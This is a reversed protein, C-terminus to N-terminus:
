GDLEFRIKEPEEGEILEVLSDMNEARQHIRTQLRLGERLVESESADLRKALESLVTAERRTLWVTKTVERPGQKM